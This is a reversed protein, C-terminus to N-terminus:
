GLSDNALNQECQFINNFITILNFHFKEIFSKKEEFNGGNGIVVRFLM